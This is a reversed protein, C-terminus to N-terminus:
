KKMRTFDVKWHLDHVAHQIDKDTAPVLHQVGNQDVGILLSGNALSDEIQQQQPTMQPVQAKAQAERQDQYEGFTGKPFLTPGAPSQGSMNPPLQAQGPTTQPAAGYPTTMRPTPVNQPGLGQTAQQSVQPPAQQKPTTPPQYSPDLSKRFADYRAMKAEDTADLSFWGYDPRPAISTTTGNHVLFEHYEPNNDWISNLIDQREKIKESATQSRSGPAAQTERQQAGREQIQALEAANNLEALETKSIASGPIDTVEMRGGKHVLVINKGDTIVKEIGGTNVMRYVSARDRAVGETEINHRQTEETRALATEAQQRNRQATVANTAVNSALNRENVNATNELSAAQQFPAAKATWEAMDRLYPAYLVKEQESVSPAVGMGKNGLGVGFGVLRRAVSPEERVPPADLLTNFRDSAGHAPTYTQNILELIRKADEEDSGTLSRPQIQSAPPNDAISRTYPTDAPNAGFVGSDLIHKSRLGPVDNTNPSPADSGRFTPGRSQSQEDGYGYSPDDMGMGFSGLGFSDFLNQQRLPKINYAM